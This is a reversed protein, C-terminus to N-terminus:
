RVTIHFCPKRTEYKIFCTGLRRQDNLVEALIPKLQNASWEQQKPGDPDSCRRFSKYAIDFTTGFRHCSQETANRNHRTLQEIDANTRMLSTVVIKHFPIGKSTLSDMFARGIEDLLIAAQPVLYPVSHTLQEIDYYPSAGVYVYRDNHAAADERDECEPAGILMATNLQVDNLDNFVEAYKITQIKSKLPKNDQPRFAVAARPTRFIRQVIEHVEAITDPLNALEQPDVELSKSAAKSESLEAHVPDTAPPAIAYTKEATEEEPEADEQPAVVFGRLLALVATSLWFIMLFHHTRLRSKKHKKATM